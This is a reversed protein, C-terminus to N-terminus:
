HDQFEDHGTPPPQDAFKDLFVKGPKVDAALHFQPDHRVRIFQDGPQPLAAWTFFASPQNMGSLAEVRFKPPNAPDYSLDGIQLPLLGDTARCERLGTAVPVRQIGTKFLGLQNTFMLTEISKACKRWRDDPTDKRLKQHDSENILTAEILRPVNPGAGAAGVISVATTIEFLADDSEETHVVVRLGIQGAPIPGPKFDWYSFDGKLRQCIRNAAQNRRSDFESLTFPKRLVKVDSEISVYVSTRTAQDQGRGPVALAVLALIIFARTM